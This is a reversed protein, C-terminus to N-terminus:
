VSRYGCCRKPAPHQAAPPWWRVWPAPRDLRPLWMKYAPPGQGALQDLVVTILEPADDIEQRTHTVPAVPQDTKSDAHVAGVPTIGFKAIGSIGGVTKTENRTASITPPFYPEYVHAAEFFKPEAGGVKLYGQGVQTLYYADKTDIAASSDQANATKLAIRWGLNSELQGLSM